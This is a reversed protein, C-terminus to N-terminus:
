RLIVIGAAYDIELKRGALLMTGVLLFEHPKESNGVSVRIPILARLEEDVHGKM